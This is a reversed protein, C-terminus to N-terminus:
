VKDHSVMYAYIFMSITTLAWLGTVIFTVPHTPDILPLMIAVMTWSLYGLAITNIPEETNKM